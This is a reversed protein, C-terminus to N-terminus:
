KGFPLGKHHWRGATKGGLDLALEVRARRAAGKEWEVGTGPQPVIDWALTALNLHVEAVAVGKGRDHAPKPKPKPAPKSGAPLADVRATSVDINSGLAGGQLSAWWWQTIDANIALQGCTHPGCLHEHGTPHATFIKCQRAPGPDVGVRVGSAALSPLGHAKLDSLDMYLGQLRAHKAIKAKVWRGPDPNPNHPEWDLYDDDENTSGSSTIGSALGATFLDPRQRRAATGNAFRLDTYYFLAHIGNPWVKGATDYIRVYETM